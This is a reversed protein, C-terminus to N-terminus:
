FEAGLTRPERVLNTPAPDKEAASSRDYGLHPAASALSRVAVALESEEFDYAERGDVVSCGSRARPNNGNVTASVSDL